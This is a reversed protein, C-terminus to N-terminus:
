SLPHFKTGGKDFDNSVYQRFPYITTNSGLLHTKNILTDDQLNYDQNASDVFPDSTLDTDSYSELKDWGVASNNTKGSTNNYFYNSAVGGVSGQSYLVFALGYGGNSIFMNNAILNSNGTIYLGHSSNNVFISGTCICSNAYAGYRGNDHFISNIFWGGGQSASVGDSTCNGIICSYLRINVSNCCARAAFTSWNKNPDNAVVNVFVMGGYGFYVGIKDKTPHSYKFNLSHFVVNQNQSNYFLTNNSTQEIVPLAGNTVGRISVCGNCLTIQQTITQDTETVIDWNSKADATFIKVSNSNDWTARKGGIAWNRSSETNAFTDDCTVQSSSDVSAIISFQRGSSSEVWLLDGASVGTTDIGTVVASSGTTSAGSGYVATSPGLGSSQSDSGESTNFLISGNPVTM